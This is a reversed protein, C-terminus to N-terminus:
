LDFKISVGDAFNSDFKQSPEIVTGFLFEDVAGTRYLSEPNFFVNKLLRYDTTVGDATMFQYYAQFHCCYYFHYSLLYNLCIKRSFNFRLLFIGFRFRNMNNPM